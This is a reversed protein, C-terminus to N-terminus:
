VDVGTPRYISGRLRGNYMVDFDTDEHGELARMLNLFTVGLSTVHVENDDSKVAISPRDNPVVGMQTLGSTVKTEIRCLRAAIDKRLEDVTLDAVAAPVEPLDPLVVGLQSFGNDLKRETRDLRTLINNQFGPIGFEANTGTKM